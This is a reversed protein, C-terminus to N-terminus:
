IQFSQGANKRSLDLRELLLVRLELTQHRPELRLQVIDSACVDGAVSILQPHSNGNGQIEYGQRIQMEVTMNCFNLSETVNGGAALDTQLSASKLKLSVPDTSPLMLM